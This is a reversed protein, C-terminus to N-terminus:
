LRDKRRDIVECLDDFPRNTYDYLSAMLGKSQLLALMTHYQWYIPRIAWSLGSIQLSKRINEEVIALPPLCFVFMPKHWHLTAWMQALWHGDNFGPALQRRLVSGYIPESILPFRDFLKGQLIHPGNDEPRMPFFLNEVWTRLNTTPGHTDSHRPYLDFGGREMLQDILTSKGAGDPGEVILM